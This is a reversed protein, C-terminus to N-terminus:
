PNNSRRRRFHLTVITRGSIFPIKKGTGDRLVIEITDIPNKSVPYYAIVPCKVYVPRGEQASKDVPFQKLLPVEYDGVLQPPVVDTYLFIHDINEKTWPQPARRWGFGAIMPDPFGLTKCINGEFKIMYGQKAKLEVRDNWYPPDEFEVYDRVEYRLYPKSILHELTINKIPQLTNFNTQIWTPSTELPLGEGIYCHSFSSTEECIQWWSHPYSCDFLGVEWEGDLQIPKALKNKFDTVTNEPFVDMSGNSPLTVYFSHDM